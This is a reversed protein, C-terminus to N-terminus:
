PLRLGRSVAGTVRQIPLQSFGVVPSTMNSLLSFVKGRGSDSGCITWGTANDSYRIRERMQSTKRDQKFMGCCVIEQMDTYYEISIFIKFRFAM